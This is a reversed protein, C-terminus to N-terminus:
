VISPLSVRVMPPRDCLAWLRWTQIAAVLDRLPSCTPGLATLLDRGHTAHDWNQVDGGEPVAGEVIAVVNLWEGSRVPYQVVHLKPGLWVTVEQSRLAAPLDAQPVMARYALHGTVRPPADHLLQQRVSSWLGDAGILAQGQLQLGADTRAQVATGTDVFSALRQGVHLGTSGQQVVATLLLRHLDARHITAYPAGYLARTREGLRLSGLADANAASRVRLVQPFAAVQQLAQEYTYDFTFQLKM